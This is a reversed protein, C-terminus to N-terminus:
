DTKVKLERKCYSQIDEILYQLDPDRSENYSQNIMDLVVTCAVQTGVVIGKRYTDELRSRVMNEFDTATDTVTTTEDFTDSM